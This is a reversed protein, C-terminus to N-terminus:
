CVFECVCVRVCTGKRACGEGPCPMCVVAGATSSYKGLPCPGTCNPTTMIPTVGYLGPACPTCSALGTGGVSYRGVPCVIGAPSAGGAPCYSGPGAVCPGSCAPSTLGWAVGHQGAPCPVCDASATSFYSGPSCLTVNPATAGPGCGSGVCVGSCAASTLGPSAGYRGAPCASCAAAGGTSYLGAPCLGSCTGGNEAGLGPSAGFAGSDCPTCPAQGGVGFRGAPCGTNEHWAVTNYTQSASVFDVDADNDADCFYLSYASNDNNGRTAVVHPVWGPPNGGTNEYWTISYDSNTTAVADMRSDGNVHVAYVSVSAISSGTAAAAIVHSTWTPPSGGM